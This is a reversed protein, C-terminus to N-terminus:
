VMYLCLKCTRLPSIGSRGKWLPHPARICITPNVGYLHMRATYIHQIAILQEDKVAMRSKGIRGVACLVTKNFSSAAHLHLVGM